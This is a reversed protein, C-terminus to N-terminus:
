ARRPARSRAPAGPSPVVAVRRDLPEDVEGVLELADGAVRRGVGRADDDGALRQGLQHRELLRRVGVRQHGLVLHVAISASPRSLNSKRPREFRVIRRWATSRMRCSRPSRSRGRRRDREVVRRRELQEGRALRGAHELQLGRAHAAVDALQARRRDVVERRHDREVARARHVVDRGVDAALVALLRDGVEVRQELRVELLRVPDEDVLLVDHGRRHGEAPEGPGLRVREAVRDALLLRRTRRACFSCNTVWAASRPTAGFTM